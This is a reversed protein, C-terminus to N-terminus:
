NDIATSLVPNDHIFSHIFNSSKEKKHILVKTDRRNTEVGWRETMKTEAVEVNKRKSHKKLLGM